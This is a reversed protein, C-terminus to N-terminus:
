DENYFNREEQFLKKGEEKLIEKEKASFDEPYCFARACFSAIAITYTIITESRKDVNYRDFINQITEYIKIM